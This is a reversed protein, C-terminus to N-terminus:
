VTRQETIQVRLMGNPLPKLRLRYSVQADDTSNASPGAEQPAVPDKAQDEPPKTSVLADAGEAEVQEPQNSGRDSAQQLPVLEVDIPNPKIQLMAGTGADVAAGILGGLVVNGAMGAAGAGAIESSVQVTVPEYGTKEITVTFGGRRSVKFTAPTTGAMGNSTTVKAGVPKSNIVLVEKTGRTITACGTATLLALM